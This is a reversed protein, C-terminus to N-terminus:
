SEISDRKEAAFVQSMIQSMTAVPCLGCLSDSKLREEAFVLKGYGIALGLELSNAPDVEGGPNYLYFVDSGEIAGAIEIAALERLEKQATKVM